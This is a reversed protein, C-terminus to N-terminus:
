SNNERYYLACYGHMCKYFAVPKEGKQVPQKIKKCRTQSLWKDAYERYEGTYGYVLMPLGTERCSEATLLGYQNIVLNM